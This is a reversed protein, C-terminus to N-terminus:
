QRLRHFRILFYMMRSHFGYRKKIGSLGAYAALYFRRLHGERKRDLSLGVNRIMLLNEKKLWDSNRMENMFSKLEPSRERIPLSFYDNFSTYVCFVLQSILFIKKHAQYLGKEELFDKVMVYVAYKDKIKQPSSKGTTAAGHKRYYYFAKPIVTVRQAYYMLKKSFIVDEYFGNESFLITYKKVFTTKVVCTCTYANFGKRNLLMLGFPSEGKKKDPKQPLLTKKIIGKANCLHYGWVFVETKPKKKVWQELQSLTESHLFDDADLFVLYTGKAKKIALNRAYGQGKNKPLDIIKIRKDQQQYSQLLELSGDTSADNVAILEWNLDRQYIVSEICVDLYDSANYVPVIVSLKTV